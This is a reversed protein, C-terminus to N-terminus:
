RPEASARVFLALRGRVPGDDYKGWDSRVVEGSIYILSGKTDRVRKNRYTQLAKEEADNITRHRKKARLDKLYALNESRTAMRYPREGGLTAALQEQSERSRCASGESLLTDLQQVKHYRSFTIQGVVALHDDITKIESVPATKRPTTAAAVGQGLEASARARSAPTSHEVAGAIKTALEASAIEVVQKLETLCLANLEDVVKQVKPSLQQQSM